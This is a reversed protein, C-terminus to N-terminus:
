ISYISTDGYADRFKPFMLIKIGFNYKKERRINQNKRHRMTDKTCM